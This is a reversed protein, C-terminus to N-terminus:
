KLANSHLAANMWEVIYVYKCGAVSVEEMFYPHKHKAYM